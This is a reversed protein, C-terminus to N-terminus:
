ETTPCATIWQLLFVMRCCSLCPMPTLDCGPVSGAFPEHRGYDVYTLSEVLVLLGSGNWGDVHMVTVRSLHSEDESSQGTRAGLRLRYYHM